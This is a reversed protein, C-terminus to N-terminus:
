FEERSLNQTFLETDHLIGFSKYTRDRKGAALM